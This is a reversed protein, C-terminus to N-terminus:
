QMSMMDSAKQAMKKTDHIIRQKTNQDSLAWTVAAGILGGAILGTTLKSM